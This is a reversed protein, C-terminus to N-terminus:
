MDLKVDVQNTRYKYQRRYLNVSFVREIQKQLKQEIMM